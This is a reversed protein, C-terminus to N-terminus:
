PKLSEKGRSLQELLLDAIIRHGAANPHMGDLLLQDVAQGEGKGYDEFAQYVDILPLKEERALQEVTKAYGALLVNFGQPAAPDYPPKGYLEKLKPTWRMPNPTMLIVRTGRKHLSQIMTRLNLEYDKQSVRAETAPPNRWVDVAADNIGFQIVVVDPQHALVDREFRRRADATSNGGVGANIVKAEIGRAPLEKELLNAYVVLAGRPATTSDGLLVITEAGSAEVAWLLGVGLAVRWWGSM